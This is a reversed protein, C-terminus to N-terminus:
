QDFEEESLKLYGVKIPLALSLMQESRRVFVSDDYRLIYLGKLINM